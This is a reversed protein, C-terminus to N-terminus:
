SLLGPLFVKLILHGYLSVQGSTVVMVSKAEERSDAIISGKSYYSLESRLILQTWFSMKRSHLLLITGFFKSHSYVICESAEAAFLTRIEGIGGLGVLFSVKAFDRLIIMSRGSAQFRLLRSREKVKSFLNNEIKKAIALKLAPPLARQLITKNQLRETM